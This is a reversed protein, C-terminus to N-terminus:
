IEYFIHLALVSPYPANLCGYYQRSDVNIISLIQRSRGESLHCDEELRHPVKFRGHRDDVGVLERTKAQRMVRRRETMVSWEKEDEWDM